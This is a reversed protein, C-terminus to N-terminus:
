LGHRKRFHFEELASWARQYFRFADLTDGGKLLVGEEAVTALMGLSASRLDVLDIREGGCGLVTGLRRRLPELRGLREARARQTDATLVAFDWDRADPAQRARSGFLFALRVAPERSFFERLAPVGPMASSIEPAGNVFLLMPPVAVPALRNKAVWSGPRASEAFSREVLAM